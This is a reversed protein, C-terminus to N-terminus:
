LGQVNFYQQNAPAPSDPNRLHFQTEFNADVSTMALGGQLAVIQHSGQEIPGSDAYQILLFKTRDATEPAEAPNIQGTVKEPGAGDNWVGIAAPGTASTEMTLIQYTRPSASFQRLKWTTYGAPAVGSVCQVVGSGNDTNWTGVLITSGNSKQTACELRVNEKSGGNTLNIQRASRLTNGAANLLEVLVNGVMAGSEIGSLTIKVNKLIGSALGVGMPGFSVRPTVGDADYVDIMVCKVLTQPHLPTWNVTAGPAVLTMNSTSVPAAGRQLCLKMQVTAPTSRENFIKVGGFMPDEKSM